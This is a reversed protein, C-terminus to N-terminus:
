ESSLWHKISKSWIKYAFGNIHIGDATYVKDLQNNKDKLHTAILLYNIQKANCFDVLAANVKDIQTNDTGTQYIENNVPLISQVFIRNSGFEAVMIDLLKKYYQIVETPSHYCLDNVGIMLFIKSPQHRKIEDLRNKVGNIGDGSIGRNLVRLAPFLESWEGQETISDGLFIISGEATESNEFQSNRQEMKAIAHKHKLKFIINSIGGLKNTLFLVVLLAFVNGLLSIILVKRM